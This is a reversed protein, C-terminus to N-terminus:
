SYNLLFITSSQFSCIYIYNKKEFKKFGPNTKFMAEEGPWSPVPPGLPSVPFVPEVPLGPVGPALM